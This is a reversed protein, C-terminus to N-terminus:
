EGIMGICQACGYKRMYDERGYRKVCVHRWNKWGIRDDDGQIEGFVVDDETFAPVGNITHEVVCQKKVDELTAFEKALAMSEKLGGRHPRYKIVKDKTLPCGKMRELACVEYSNALEPKESCYHGNYHGDEDFMYRLFYCEICTPPPDNTYWDRLHERINDGM